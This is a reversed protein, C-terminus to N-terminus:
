FRADAAYHALLQHGTSVSVGNVYLTASGPYLNAVVAAVDVGADSDAMKASAGTIPSYVIGTPSTRMAPSFHLLFNAFSCTTETLKYLMGNTTVTGPAIGHLYSSRWYRRCLEIETSFPRMLGPLDAAVPLQTGVDIFVGTLQTLNNNTSLLNTANTTQHKFSTVWADLSSQPTTEKGSAYVDFFLGTGTTTLWTGSTDGPVTFAYFNLGAAVTIEHYYVRDASSNCIRVFTTGSVTSFFQFAVVISAAGAAGWGWHAIRYGEIRTRHRAYDGSAPSTLAGTAKLQHAFQFGALTAGFSGSAVQASTVTASSHVYNGEWMDVIYKTAGGTSLTAGTTGLEQSVDMGGNLVANHGNAAAIPAASLTTRVAVADAGTLVARGVTTSDTISSATLTPPTVISFVGNAYLLTSGSPVSGSFRVRTTANNLLQVKVIHAITDVNYVSLEKVRRQTSAAPSAVATVATTSNTVTDTAGAVFTTSTIDEWDAAVDLQTTAIVEGLKVTISKNTADLIM